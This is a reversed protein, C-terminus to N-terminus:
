LYLTVIAVIALLLWSAQATIASNFCNQSSVVVPVDSAASLATTCFDSSTKFQTTVPQGNYIAAGCAKYLSDCYNTCLTISGKIVLVTPKFFTAQQPSCPSCIFFHMLDLCQSLALNRIYQPITQNSGGTIGDWQNKIQQTQSTTCCTSGSYWGCDAMNNKM